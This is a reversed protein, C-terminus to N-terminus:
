GGPPLPERTLFDDLDRRHEVGDGAFHHDLWRSSHREIRHSVVVGSITLLIWTASCRTTVVAARNVTDEARLRLTRDVAELTIITLNTRRSWPYASGVTHRQEQDADAGSVRM